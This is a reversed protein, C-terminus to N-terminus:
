APAEIADPEAVLGLKVYLAREAAENSEVSEGWPRGNSVPEPNLLRLVWDAPESAFEAASGIVFFVQGVHCSVSPTTVVVRGDPEIRSGCM